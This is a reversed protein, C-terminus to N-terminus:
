VTTKLPHMTNKRIFPWQLLCVVFSKGIWVNEGCKKTHEKEEIVSLCKAKTKLKRFLIKTWFYFYLFSYYLFAKREPKRGNKNGTGDRCNNTEKYQEM